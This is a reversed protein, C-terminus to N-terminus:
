KNYCSRYKALLSQLWLYIEMKSTQSVRINKLGIMTKRYDIILQDNFHSTMPKHLQTININLSLETMCFKCRDVDPQGVILFFLYHMESLTFTYAVISISSM